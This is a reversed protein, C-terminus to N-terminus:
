KRPVSEGQRTVEDQSLVAPICRPRKARIVQDMWPLDVALVHRYLFLLASLAQNQTSASVRGEVALDSLFAQVESAGMERPHRKGNALIFLRIWQLYAREARISYHRVRLAARVQELLRPSRAEGAAVPGSIVGSKRHYSM